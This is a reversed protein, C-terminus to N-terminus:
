VLGRDLAWPCGGARLDPLNFTTSGDGAGWTTGVAAFLVSVTDSVRAAGDCWLWGAPLTSGAFAVITGPPALEAAHKGDLQDANNATTAYDAMAAAGAWFAYPVIAFRQRPIMESDGGVTLGVYRDPASFRDATLPKTDGLLVSFHGGRVVVNDHPEQWYGVGVPADYIGFTLAYAGELLQGANDRLDGQYHVVSPLAASAAASATSASAAAPSSAAPASQAHVARLPDGRLFAVLGYLAFLWM